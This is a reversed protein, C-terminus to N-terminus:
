ITIFSLFLRYTIIYIFKGNCRSLFGYPLMFTTVFDLPKDFRHIINKQNLAPTISVKLPNTKFDMAHIAVYYKSSKTRRTESFVLLQHGYELTDLVKVDQISKFITPNRNFLDKQLEPLEPDSNLTWLFAYERGKANQGGLRKFGGFILIRGDM